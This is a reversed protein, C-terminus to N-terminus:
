RKYISNDNTYQSYESEYNSSSVSEYKSSYKREYNDNEDSPFPMGINNKTDIAYYKKNNNDTVHSSYDNHSSQQPQEEQQHYRKHYNYYAERFSDDKYFKEYRKLYNEAENNSPGLNFAMANSIFNINIGVLFIIGILTSSLFLFLPRDM